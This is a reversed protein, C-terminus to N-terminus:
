NQEDLILASERTWEILRNKQEDTLGANKHLLVYSQLPMEDKEISERIEKLKHLQKRKSYNGFESFNLEIKGEKIHGNVWWSVPSIRDYWPYITNNSHCDYCSRKLLTEIDGPIEMVTSIDHVSEGIFENRVPQFFQAAILLVVLAILLGKKM